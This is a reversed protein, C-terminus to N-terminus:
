HIFHRLLLFAVVGFLLLSIGYILILYFNFGWKGKDKFVPLYALLSRPYQKIFAILDKDYMFGAKFDTWFDIRPNKSDLHKKEHKLIRKYLAPFEKLHKNIQLWKMVKGNKVSTVVFAFGYDIEEIRYRKGKHTLFKM